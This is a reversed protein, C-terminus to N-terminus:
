GPNGRHAAFEGDRVYGLRLNRRGVVFLDGQLGACPTPRRTFVARGPIEPRLDADARVDGAPPRMQEAHAYTNLM